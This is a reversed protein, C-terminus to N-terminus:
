APAPTSGVCRYRTMQTLVQWPVPTKLLVLLIMCAGMRVQKASQVITRNVDSRMDMITVTHSDTTAVLCADLAVGTSVGTSVSTTIGAIKDASFSSLVRATVGVLVGEIEGLTVAVIVSVIINASVAASIGQIVGSIRSLIVIANVGSTVFLAAMLVM